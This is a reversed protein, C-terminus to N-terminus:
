SARRETAALELLELLACTEWNVGIYPTFRDLHEEKAHDIGIQSMLVIPLSRYQERVEQIHIRDTLAVDAEDINKVVNWGRMTLLKRFLVEFTEDYFVLSVNM